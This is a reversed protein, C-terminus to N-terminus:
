SIEDIKNKTTLVLQEIDNKKSEIEFNLSELKLRKIELKLSDFDFPSDPFVLSNIEELKEQSPNIKKQLEVNKEQLHQIQSKFEELRNRVLEDEEKAKKLKTLERQAQCIEEIEETSLIERQGFKLGQMKKRKKALKEKIIRSYTHNVVLEDAITLELIEDLLKKYNTKLKLSKEIRGRAEEILNNLNIQRNNIINNLM